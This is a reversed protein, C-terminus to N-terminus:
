PKAEYSIRPDMALYAIDTLLNITSYILAVVLTVGMIGVYDSGQMAHVSYFGIGPWSFVVEVLFVGSLLYGLQLGLLTVPAILANRLAHRVIVRRRSLGKTVATRIYDQSLVELMSARTVRVILSLSALALVTAPLVIHECANAFTGFQGALLSDITYMGTIKPPPAVGPSLRGTLPLIHLKGGFVLQLILGLWFLPLASGAIAFIRSFHDIVKGKRIASLVGLPFGVVIAAIIAVLVLEVTAPLYAGLDTTVPRRSYTSIGLNGHLIGTLYNWYQTALPKDFGYQHRVIALTRATANHGAILVAPDSPIVHSIVFTMFTIGVAIVVLLILRRVIFRLM